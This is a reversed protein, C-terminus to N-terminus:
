LFSPDPDGTDICPSGSLRLDDNFPNDDDTFHIFGPDTNIGGISSSVGIYSRVNNYAIYFYGTTLVGYIDRGYAINNRIDINSDKSDSRFYIAYGSVDVITNNHIIVNCTDSSFIYMGSMCSGIINNRFKCGWFMNYYNYYHIGYYYAGYLINRELIIKMSDIEPCIFISRSGGVIAMGSIINNGRRLNVTPSSSENNEIVTYRPDIGSLMVGEPIELNSEFYTGPQVVIKDGCDAANLANKITYYDRPVHKTVGECVNISKEVSSAIGRATAVTVRIVYNGSVDFLIETKSETTTSFSASIDDIEWKYSNIEGETPWPSPMSDGANVSMGEGETVMFMPFKDSSSIVAKPSFDVGGLVGMDIRSGDIDYGANICPSGPSLRKDYLYMSYDNTADPLWSDFKPDQSIDGPGASINYYDVIMNNWVDNYGLEATGGTEVYIGTNTNFVIINNRIMPKSTKDTYIGYTNNEITCNIIEPMSNIINIGANTNNYIYCNKIVGDICNEFKVGDAGGTIVFSNIEANSINSFMVGNIITEKYGQGILKVGGKMVINETYTGASVSVIDGNRAVNIADQIRPYMSPVRLISLMKSLDIRGYGYENDFGADGLDDTMERLSLRIEGNTMKPYLSWLLAASGSIVPTAMSTGSSARYTNGIYTSYINVGPATLELKPGYNSFEAKQDNDDTAGVAIVSDYCAPYQNLVGSDNGLAAVILCGRTYAYDCADRLITSAERGGLSMNIIKAGNDAAYIIGEAVWSLYGSGTSGLVKVPMLRCNWAVGAVGIGNNGVAGAIGAVHTGHHYDDNPDNDKNVFDGGNVDDIYGNGDDDIGNGSIEDSNIWINKVLDEHDLDIGTDVIAIIVSSDGQTKEWITEAKIDCGAIGGTQGTNNLHWQVNYSPDNPIVCVQAIGDPEAYEVNPDMSLEQAFSVPDMNEPIEFIMTRSFGYRIDLSANKIKPFPKRIERVGMRKNAADISDIGILVKRGLRRYVERKAAAKGKLKVIIRGKVYEPTDVPKQNKALSFGYQLCVIGAFFLMILLKALIRM